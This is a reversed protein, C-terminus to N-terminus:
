AHAAAGLEAELAYAIRFMVREGFRPAIVQGGVPLGDVRGVPLSMAPVEALNASVTFLDCLYMEYPDSIAGIEFAPTPTTPTFLLM